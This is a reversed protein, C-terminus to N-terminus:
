TQMFTQLKLRCNPPPNIELPIFKGIMMDSICNTLPIWTIYYLLTSFLSSPGRQTRLLILFHITPVFVLGSFLSPEGIFCFSRTERIGLLLIKRFTPLPWKLYTNRPLILVFSYTINVLTMETSHHLRFAHQFSKLFEVVHSFQYNLFHKFFPHLSPWVSIVQNNDELNGTPPTMISYKSFLTKKKKLSTSFSCFVKSSIHKSLDIYKRKLLKKRYSSVIIFM